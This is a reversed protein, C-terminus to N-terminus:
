LADLINRLSTEHPGVKEPACERLKEIEDEVEKVTPNKIAEAAQDFSQTLEQIAKDIGDKLPELTKHAELFDGAKAMASAKNLKSQFEGAKKSSGPLEKLNAM